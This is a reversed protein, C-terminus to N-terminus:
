EEEIQRWARQWNLAHRPHEAWGLPLGPWRAPADTELGGGAQRARISQALADLYDISQALLPLGQAPGQEPLWVLASGDHQSLRGLQTLSTQMTRLDADRLDPPGDAWLLGPVSWLATRKLRWVLVAQDPARKLKWWVWPGLEGQDGQALGGAVGPAGPVTVVTEPGLDQAAAGMRVKLREECHACQQEMALAVAQHAWLAAQPWARNGLVLEPRAWPNVIDSVQWGTQQALGCAMARGLTPSPGSGLLWVREDGPVRVAMVASVRGRNAADADGAAGPLWFAQDTLRQWVLEQTSCPAAWALGAGAWLGLLLCMARYWQTLM